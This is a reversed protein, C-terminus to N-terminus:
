DFPDYGWEHFSDANTFIDRAKAQKSLIQYDGNLVSDGHQRAYDETISVWDGRNIQAGTISKPVARYITVSSDPKGRLSHILSIAKRDVVSMSPGSGYYRAGNPGYIDDPYFEGGGTVDHLPAGADRMPPRHTMGYDPMSMQPGSSNGRIILEDLPVDYDDLPYVARRQAPTYDMRKQVARAEAEGALRRYLGHSLNPDGMADHVQYLESEAKRLEAVLSRVEPAGPNYNPSAKLADLREHLEDLRMQSSPLLTRPDSSGGRAFGERRQIVHQTEHLATSRHTEPPGSVEMFEDGGFRTDLSGRERSYPDITVAVQDLDGYAANLQPHNLAENLPAALPESNFRSQSDDIEFRMKGDPGRFWGETRWVERPDAGLALRSAARNMAAVDATAAKPGAFIGLQAAPSGMVPAEMRAANRAVNAVGSLTQKAAPAGSLALLAEPLVSVATAAAPSGTRDLVWEGAKQRGREINETVPAVLKAISAQQAKAAQSRPQYTLRERTREVNRAGKELGGSVLGAIGSLGAPIEALGGTILQAVNEAQGTQHRVYAKLWDRLAM